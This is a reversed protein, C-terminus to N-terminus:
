ALPLELRFVNEDGIRRYVLDGGQARALSRAVSLGLGVSAQITNAEGRNFPEFIASAVNPAIETGDDAVDVFAMGDIQGTEVRRKPGGYRIANTALNRVIQRVRVGDADVRVDIGSAEMHADVLKLADRVLPQLDVGATLVDLEGAESRAAVLLDEVLRELEQAEGALVDLMERLAPGEFSAGETRLVDLFGIIGTLPTRLEHAAAATFENKWSILRELERQTNMLESVDTMAVVVHAFDPKGDVLPVHLNLRVPLETGDMDSGRFASEWAISGSALAHFQQAFSLIAAENLTGPQIPGCLQSRRELGFMALAAPNADTIEVLQILRILSERDVMLHTGLDHVGSQRLGILEPIVRTYDEELLCVPAHAFLHTFRTSDSAPVDSVELAPRILPAIHNPTM